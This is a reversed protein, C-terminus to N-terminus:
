VIGHELKYTLWNQKLWVFHDFDPQLLFPNTERERAITSEPSIGYDHGPLVRTDDPLRMLRQLSEYEARAGSGFDTGGVKGVFLTDGTFLAGPGGAPHRVYLCMAEPTHGPTHIITIRLDGLPLEVGDVLRLGTLPDQDGFLLAPRSSLAQMEANGNTHDGHRHTSFLYVIRYGNTQAFQWVTRPAYSVDIVAAQKTASDAVLYAFNRDGGVSFQKILLHEVPM